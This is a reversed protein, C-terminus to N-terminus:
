PFAHWLRLSERDASQADSSTCSQQSFQVDANTCPYKTMSSESIYPSRRRQQTCRHCTGQTCIIGSATATDLSLRWTRMSVAGNKKEPDKSKQEPLDFFRRKFDEFAAIMEERNRKCPMAVKQCEAWCWVKYNALQAASSGPQAASSAPQAASSHFGRGSGSDVDHDGPMTQLVYIGPGQM